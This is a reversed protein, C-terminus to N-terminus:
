FGLRAASEDRGQDQHQHLRCCRPRNGAPMVGSLSEIEQVADVNFNTFTAGGMEPDTTDVGDMAFVATAGRQGNVAFQQTFNASGNTDTMTGAALLLLQSFDRKNLPLESVQRSSLSEGGSAASPKDDPSTAVTQWGDSMSGIQIPLNLHEGPQLRRTWPATAINDNWHVLVDYTGPLLEPFTFGGHENTNETYSSARLGTTYSLKHAPFSRGRPM